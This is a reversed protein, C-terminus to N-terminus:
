DSVTYLSGREIHLKGDTFGQILQAAVGEDYVFQSNGIAVLRNGIICGEYTVSDSNITLQSADTWLIGHFESAITDATDGDGNFDIEAKDQTELLSASSAFVVNSAHDTILLTPRDQAIGHLVLGEEFTVTRNRMGHIVLTGRVYINRLVLERGTGNIHYIGQPNAVGQSNVEPTLIVNEVLRAGRDNVTEVATGNRSWFTGDPSPAPEGSPAEFLGNPYQSSPISDHSATTIRKVEVNAPEPLSNVSLSAHLDGTVRFDRSLELTESMYVVYDLAEHTRPTMLGRVHQKAGNYRANVALKAPDTDDDTFDGDADSVIVEFQRGGPLHLVRSTGSVFRERWDPINQFYYAAWEVGAETLLQAELSSSLSEHLRRNSAQMNLLTMATGTILVSMMLTFAQLGVGRRRMM